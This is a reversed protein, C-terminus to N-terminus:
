ASEPRGVEQVIVPVDEIQEPLGMDAARHGSVGVVIAPNGRPDIGVGVSMVGGTRMLTEAHRALVGGAHAADASERRPFWRTIVDHFSRRSM